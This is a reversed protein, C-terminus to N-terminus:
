YVSQKFNQLSIVYLLNYTSKFINCMIIDDDDDSASASAVAAELIQGEPKYAKL